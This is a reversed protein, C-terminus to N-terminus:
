CRAPLPCIARPKPPKSFTLTLNSFGPYPPTTDLTLSLSSPEENDLRAVNFGMEAAQTELAAASNHGM